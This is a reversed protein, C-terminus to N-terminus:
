HRDDDHDDDRDRYRYREDDRDDRYPDYYGNHDGYRRRDGSRWHGYARPRGLHRGIEDILVDMRDMRDEVYRRPRVYRMASAVSHFSDELAAFDGRLHRLNTRYREVQQHFHEAREELAHLDEALRAEARDPRRNNREFRRHTDTALREVEHALEAIREPSGVPGRYGPYDYGPYHRDSQAAASASLGFALLVAALPITAFRRTRTM